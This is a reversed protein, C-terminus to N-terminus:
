LFTPIVTSEGAKIKAAPCIAGSSESILDVHAKNHFLCISQLLLSEPNFGHQPNSFTVTVHSKKNAKKHRAISFRRRWVTFDFDRANSLKAAKNLKSIHVTNWQFIKKGRDVRIIWFWLPTSSVYNVITMVLFPAAIQLQMSRPAVECHLCPILNGSGFWLLKFHQFGIFVGYRRWGPKWPGAVPNM